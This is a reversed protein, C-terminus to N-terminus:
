CDAAPQCGAGCKTSDNETLIRESNDLEKSILELHQGFAQIFGRLLAVQDLNMVCDALRHMDQLNDGIRGRLNLMWPGAVMRADLREKQKQANHLDSRM